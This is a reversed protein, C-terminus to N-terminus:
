KEMHFHGCRNCEFYVQKENTGFKIRTKRIMKDGCNCCAVKKAFSMRFLKKIM